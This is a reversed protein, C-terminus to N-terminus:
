DWIRQPQVEPQRRGFGQILAWSGWTTVAALMVIGTLTLTAYPAIMGILVVCLMLLALLTRDM